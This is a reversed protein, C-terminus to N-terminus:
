AAEGFRLAARTQTVDFLRMVGAVPPVLELAFAGHGARRRLDLLLPLAAVDVFAVDRLDLVLSTAGM